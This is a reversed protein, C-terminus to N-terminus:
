GYDERDVVIPFTKPRRRYCEYETYLWKPWRVDKSLDSSLTRHEIKEAVCFIEPGFEYTPRTRIGSRRIAEFLQHESWCMVSHNTSLLFNGFGACTLAKEVEGVTWERNHRQYIAGPKIGVETGPSGGNLVNVLRFGAGANPTSLILRGGPKLVRNFELLTWMPDVILHELTDCFVVTGFHGDDYGLVDKDCEFQCGTITEGDYVVQPDWLEAIQYPMMRNFYKRFVPFLIGKGSAVDLTPGEFEVRSLGMNKFIRYLRPVNRDIYEKRHTPGKTYSESARLCAAFEEEGVASEGEQIYKANKVLPFARRRSLGALTRVSSFLLRIYRM